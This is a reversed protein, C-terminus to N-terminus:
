QKRRKKNNIESLSQAYFVGQRLLDGVLIARRIEAMRENPAKKGMQHFAEEGILVFITRRDLAEFVPGEGGIAQEPCTLVKVTAGSADDYIEVLVEKDDENFSHM